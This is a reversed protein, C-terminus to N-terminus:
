GCPAIGATFEAGSEVAFDPGFALSSDSQFLVPDGSKITTASASLPGASHYSGGAVSVGQINLDTACANSYASAALFGTEGNCAPSAAVSNVM